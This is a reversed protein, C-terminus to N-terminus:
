QANGRTCFPSLAAAHPRYKPAGTPKGDKDTSAVPKLAAALAAEYAERSLEFKDATHQKHASWGHLQDAASHQADFRDGRSQPVKSTRNSLSLPSSKGVHGTARAWEEPTRLVVKAEAQTKEETSAPPEQPPAEDGATAAPASTDVASQDNEPRVEADVQAEEAPTKKTGM